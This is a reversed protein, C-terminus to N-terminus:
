LRRIYGYEDIEELYDYIMDKQRQQEVLSSPFAERLKRAERIPELLEEWEQDSLKRSLKEYDVFLRNVEVM